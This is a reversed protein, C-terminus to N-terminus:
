KRYDLDHEVSERYHEYRDKTRRRNAQAKEPYTMYDIFTDEDIITVNHAKAEVLKGTNRSSNEAVLFHTDYRIYKHFGGGFAEIREQAQRRTMIKLSGTLCFNVGNLLCKDFEERGRCLEGIFVMPSVSAGNVAMETIREVKFTREESALGCFGRVYLGNKVMGIKQIIVDRKTTTNKSDTYTIAAAINDVGIEADFVLGSGSDGTANVAADAPSKDANRMGVLVIAVFIVVPIIGFPGFVACLVVSAAVLGLIVKLM